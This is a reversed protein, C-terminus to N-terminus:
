NESALRRKKIINRIKKAVKPIVYDDFDEGLTVLERIVGSNIASLGPDAFISVTEVDNNIKKNVSALNFEFQFDTTNRMGRLMFSARKKISYKVIAGEFHDLIVNDLKYFEIYENMMAMRDELSFFPKKVPNIAVVWYIYDFKLAARRLIDAHGLTPPDASTPYVAIFKRM